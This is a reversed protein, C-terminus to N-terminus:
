KLEPFILYYIQQPIKERPSTDMKEAIERSVTLDYPEGQEIARKVDDHIDQLDNADADYMGGMMESNEGSRAREADAYGQLRFVEKQLHQLSWDLNESLLGERIIRRLQRKTIKM